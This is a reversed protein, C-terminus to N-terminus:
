NLSIVLSRTWQKTDLFSPTRTGRLKLLNRSTRSYTRSWIGGIGMSIIRQATRLFTVFNPQLKRYYYNFVDFQIKDLISPRKWVEGSHNMREKLLQGLINFITKLRLGHNVLFWVFNIAETVSTKDSPDVYGQVRDSVFKQFLGLEPPYAPEGTCWPDAVYFGGEGTFGSVNMSSCSGTTLGSERLLGWIDQHDALPGDGLNFVKHEEFSLGTHTTYWQIWPELFKPDREGADTTFVASDEYFRRFNPLLGEGMWKDLLTPSLENFEILILKLNSM